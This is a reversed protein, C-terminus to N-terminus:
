DVLGRAFWWGVAEFRSKKYAVSLGNGLKKFREHQTAVCRGIAVIVASDIVVYSVILSGTGRGPDM